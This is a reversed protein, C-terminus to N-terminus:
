PKGFYKIEEVRATKISHSRGADHDRFMVLYETRGGNVELGIETSAAVQVEANKKMTYVSGGMM